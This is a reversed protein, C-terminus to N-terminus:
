RSVDLNKKQLLLSSSVLSLVIIAASLEIFTLKLTTTNQCRCYNIEANIVIILLLKQMIPGILVM